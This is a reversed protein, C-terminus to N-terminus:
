AKRSRRKPPTRGKPRQPEADAAEIAVQPEIPDTAAPAPGEPSPEEPEPEPKEPHPEKQNPLPEDVPPEPPPELEEPDAEEAMPVALWADVKEALEVYDTRATLAEEISVLRPECQLSFDAVFAELAEPDQGRLRETIERAALARRAREFSTAGM